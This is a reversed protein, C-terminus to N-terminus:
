GLEEFKKLAHHALHHDPQIEAARKFHSRAAEIDEDKMYTALGLNYEADAHETKETVSQLLKQAPEYQELQCLTLGYEFSIDTDEPENKHATEFFPISMAFDGTNVYSRAIMFNLDGDEFHKDYVNLYLVLAEKYREANFYLNALTYGASFSDPKLVLAQQLFREAEEIKGISSLVVAGNIYHTEDKPNEDITKFILELAKEYEGSEIHKQYEFM